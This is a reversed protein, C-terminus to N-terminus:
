MDRESDRQQGKNDENDLLMGFSSKSLSYMLETAKILKFCISNCINCCIFINLM